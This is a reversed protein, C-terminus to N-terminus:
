PRMGSGNTLDDALGPSGRFSTFTLTALLARGGQLVMCLARDNAFPDCWLGLKHFIFSGGGNCSNVFDKARLGM